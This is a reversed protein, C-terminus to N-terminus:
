GLVEVVKPIVDGSRMLMIRSGIKLGMQQIWTLNNLTVREITAGALVVPEVIGVPTLRGQRGVQWKVERLITETKANQPKYCIQFNAFKTGIGLEKRLYFDDVKIVIGDRGIEPNAEDLLAIKATLATRLDVANTVLNDDPMTFGLQGVMELLGVASAVQRFNVTVDGSDLIVEWPRFEVERKAVEALDKLKMTGAVLNRTSVYPKGGAAVIEKNLRDMTSRRIVLEGRVELRPFPPGSLTKPISAVALVQDLISEGADGDGRTLALRLRRDEYVLSCSIGDWKSGVTATKNAAVKLYWAIVEDISYFNEISRMPNAHTIRGPTDTGVTTLVTAKEEAEPQGKVLAALQAELADYTQDPMIPAGAYYAKRAEELQQNLKEILKMANGNMREAIQHLYMKHTAPFGAVKTIAALAAAPLSFDWLQTRDSVWARAAFREPDKRGLQEGIVLLLQRVEAPYRAILTDSAFEVPM